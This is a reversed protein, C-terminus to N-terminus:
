GLGKYAGRTWHLDAMQGLRSRCMRVLPENAAEIAWTLRSVGAEMLLWFGHIVMAIAVAGARRLDERVFVDTFRVTERDTRHATVWGVVEGGRTLIQSLDPMLLSEERFPDAEARYWGPEDKRAAMFQRQATSLSSWHLLEYCRPVCRVSEYRTGQERVGQGFRGAVDAHMVLMRPVPDSWHRKELVRAFPASGPMADSWVTRVARVGAGGLTKEARALLATGLGRGRQDAGVFLSLLEARERAGDPVCLVLGAPQNGAYAGVALCGGALRDRYAPFTMHGFTQAEARSLTRLRYAM